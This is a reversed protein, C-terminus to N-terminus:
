HTFTKWYVIIYDQNDYDRHNYKVTYGDSELVGSIRDRYKNDVINVDVSVKFLGAESGTRITKYVEKLFKGVKISMLNEYEVSAISHAQQATIRNQM